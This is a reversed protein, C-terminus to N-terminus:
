SPGPSAVLAAIREYLETPSGHLVQDAKARRLYLHLDHEWTFGIGGLTQLAQGALLPVEESAFAKAVTASLTADSAGADLAMAAYYTSARVCKITTLMDAVKHKVSQFAGLPRGFQERVKAHEVTMALLGEGAGLADAAVLVMAADLFWTVEAADSTLIRTSPIRVGNFTVMARNRTEDLTRSPRVLTDPTDVLALVVGTPSTATVMLLDVTRAAPVALSAGDLKLEDGDVTLAVDGHHAWAARLRGDLLGKLLDHNADPGGAVAKATLATDIVPGPAVVRGLEEAVLCLEVLGQGAGGAGEPVALGPWDLDVGRQWLKEDLDLDNGALSRVLMAPCHAALMSRSVDRLMAQEETLEFDM